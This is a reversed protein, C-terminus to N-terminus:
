MTSILEMTFPIDERQAISSVPLAVDNFMEMAEIQAKFDTLTTRNAATGTVTMVVKVTGEDGGDQDATTSREYTIGTITVRDPVNTVLRRIFVYLPVHNSSPSLTELLSNTRTLQKTIRQSTDTDVQKKLGTLTSEVEQFRQQVLVYSPFLAIVTVIGTVGLLIVIMIMRRLAYERRVRKKEESPLLNPM